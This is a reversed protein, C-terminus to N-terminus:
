SSGEDIQKSEIPLVRNFRRRIQKSEIPLGPRSRNSSQDQKSEITPVLLAKSFCFHVTSVLMFSPGRDDSVCLDAGGGGDGGDGGGAYVATELDTPNNM